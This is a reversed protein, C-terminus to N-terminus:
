KKFNYYFSLQFTRNQSKMDESGINEGFENTLFFDDTVSALGHIYRAGVALDNKVNLRLGFVAGFDFDRNAFASGNSSSAGQKLTSSLLYGFELGSEIMFTESFTYGITMPVNVYNFHFMVDRQGDSGETKFGKSSFLLEPNLTIKETLFFKSYAGVHYGLRYKRFSDDIGEPAAIFVNNVYNPGGKFGIESQALSINSLIFIGAIFLKIRIM